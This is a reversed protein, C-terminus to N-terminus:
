KEARSPGITAVRLISGDLHGTVTASGGAFKKLQIQDGELTYTENGAVLVYNSGM